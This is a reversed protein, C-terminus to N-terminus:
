KMTKYPIYSYYVEYYVVCMFFWGSSHLNKSFSLRTKCRIFNTIEHTSCLSSSVVFCCFFHAIGIKDGCVTERSATNQQTETAEYMGNCITEWFRSALLDVATTTQHLHFSFHETWGNSCLFPLYACYLSRDFTTNRHSYYWEDYATQNVQQTRFSSSSSSSGMECTILCMIIGRLVIFYM